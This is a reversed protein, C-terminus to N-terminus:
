PVLAVKARAGAPMRVTELAWQWEALPFRHTVLFSLDLVGENLLGVVQRWIHSTYSFSAVISIDGNVLDDVPMPVRAAQGSYGLLAITGGRAALRLAAAVSEAAGAAEIVLDFAAGSAATGLATEDLVFLDAGAAAVLVGQEERRGLVTVSAPSWLRALRAALLGITGDGIVLVRQGPRPRCRTLARLVVSAPEILVASEDPVPGAIVHVLRRPVTIREAAAGPRTFGIEDYTACRNTDGAVCEACHWCPVVGEVVVRTGAPLPQLAGAAGGPAGGDPAAGDVVRGVWEHGLTVPYRVFGPDIDGAVIDLDTGCIGVLVPEILVEEAAPVPEHLEALAVSGPESVVLAQM